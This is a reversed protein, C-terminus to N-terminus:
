SDHSKEQERKGGAINHYFEYSLIEVKTKNYVYTFFIVQVNCRHKLVIRSNFFVSVVM